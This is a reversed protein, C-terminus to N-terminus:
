KKDPYSISTFHNNAILEQAIKKIDDKTVKEVEKPYNLLWDLNKNFFTNAKIVSLWYGNSTQQDKFGELTTKKVKALDVDSPGNTKMDNLIGDYAKLINDVNKPDCPLNAELSYNSYPYQSMGASVNGSYIYGLKERLIETVKITLIQGLLDAKLNADDSYKINGYYKDSINSKQNEGKYFDLRHTGDIPRLHNDAFLSGEKGDTPLTAIYQCLLPKLSDININGVFYFHMGDVSSFLSKYLHVLTDANLADIQAVTPIIIPAFPSRHYYFNNVSDSFLVEPNKSQNPLIQNVRDKFNDLLATDKRPSTLTLYTLQMLTNLDEVSSSGSVGIVNDGLSPSVGVNKGALYDNLQTPTFNGYGMTGTLMTLFTANLNESAPLDNSGGPKSGSMLIQDNQYTTPLVTVKVKNSLTFTTTKLKADKEEKVITGAAPLNGILKDSFDAAVYPNVKQAEAENVWNKLQVSDPLVLNGSDPATLLTYTNPSNILNTKAFSNIDQTTITPLLEKIYQYLNSIGVPQEGGMFDAAYADTYSASYQKARENYASEYQSLIDNKVIQIEKETLGYNKVQLIAYMASDISTKIDKNPAIDIETNKQQIAFGSISGDMDVSAYGFSPNPKQALLNLRKNLCTSFIDKILDNKIDNLTRTTDKQTAPFSINISYRTAEKDTVIQADDKTYPLVDYFTRKKENSPAKLSSFYQKVLALGKQKSIDGVIIVAMLDPRYWSHYFDRILQPNAHAVISDLGSPLRDAYRSNNLLNKLYKNMMRTSANRNRMKLEELIVNREANVEDDSIQAGDAWDRLIQMGTPLNTPNDTPIPLIYYTRDFMTNANLDSGFGVGIKELYDVLKNKPFHKLGNFEMHEMFHALGQQDENELISGANVVLRLEVKKGPKENPKIYYTLGNPLKGTLVSTDKALTANLDISKQMQSHSVTLSAFSLLPFIFRLKKM